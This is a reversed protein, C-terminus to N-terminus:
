PLFGYLSVSPPFCLSPFLCSDRERNSDGPGGLRHPGRGVQIGAKALGAAESLDLLEHLKTYSIVITM